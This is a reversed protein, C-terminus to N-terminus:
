FCSFICICCRELHFLSVRGLSLETLSVPLHTVAVLQSPLQNCWEAISPVTLPALCCSHSSSMPVGLLPSPVAPSAFIVWHSYCKTYKSYITLSTFMFFCTLSPFFRPASLSPLLSLILHLSLFPFGGSHHTRKVPFHEIVLVRLKGKGRGGSSTHCLSVDTTSATVCQISNIQFM